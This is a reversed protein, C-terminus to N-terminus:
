RSCVNWSFSKLHKKEEKRVAEAVAEEVALDIDEQTFGGVDGGGTEKLKELEEKLKIVEEKAEEKRKKLNM